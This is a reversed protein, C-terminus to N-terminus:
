NVFRVIRHHNAYACTGVATVGPDEEERGQLWPAMKLTKQGNQTNRVFISGCSTHGKKTHRKWIEGGNDQM